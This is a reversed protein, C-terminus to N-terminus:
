NKCSHKGKWSLKGPCDWYDMNENYLVWATCAYMNGSSFGPYPNEIDPNCAKEFTYEQGELGFPIIGRTTFYFAFVNKGPEYEEMPNTAVVIQGCTEAKGTGFTFNCKPQWIRFILSAGNNLRVSSFLDLRSLSSVNICNELVYDQSKNICDKSIKLYPKLYNAFNAHSQQNNMDSGLNWSLVDGNENVAYQYAQSLMSYSQKLRSVTAKEYYKSILTPITMAAVIGIIGLTIM